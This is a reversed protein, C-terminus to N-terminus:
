TSQGIVTGIIVRDNGSFDKYVKIETFGNEKFLASVSEAQDYGIEVALTGGENLARKWASTIHKYFILGDEGGDLAMKPEKKVEESLGDIVSTPIYPPNSLILDYKEDYEDFIDGKICKVAAGNLKVNRELYCFAIDSKEIAAVEAKSNKAVAVAVAGSGACLDAVKIRKDGIIELAIDVLRETDARPILVGEGVCFPLGYFEWAGLLYQLPEGSIRKNALVLADEESKAFQVIQKAEFGAAEIGGKKLLDAIKLTFDTTMVM